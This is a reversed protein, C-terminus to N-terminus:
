EYQGRCSVIIIQRGIVKYVLRHEKTISRSWHGALNYKLEHPNGQGEFPTKLMEVLLEDIHNTIPKDSKQWDLYDSKARNYWRLKYM